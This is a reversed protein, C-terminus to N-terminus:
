AKRIKFDSKNALLKGNESIRFTSNSKKLMPIKRIKKDEFIDCSIKSIEFNEM